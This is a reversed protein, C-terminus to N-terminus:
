EKRRASKRAIALVGIVAAFIATAEGLTDIARFNIAIAEVINLSGTLPFAEELYTRLVRMEPSGFQHVTKLAIYAAFLFVALFIVTSTTNFVWRGSVSFPVDKRITARILIILSLIEVVLQMIALDPAKLVLFAMCLGIGVGGVAIISSLLDKVEVAIVAAAIMFLLILHIEIM